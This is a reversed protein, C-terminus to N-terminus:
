DLLIEIKQIGEPNTFTTQISTIYTRDLLAGM